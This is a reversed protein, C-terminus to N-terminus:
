QSKRPIKGSRKAWLPDTAARVTGLDVGLFRANGHVFSAEDCDVVLLASANRVDKRDAIHDALWTATVVPGPLSTTM